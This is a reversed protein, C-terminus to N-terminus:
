IGAGKQVEANGELRLNEMGTDTTAKDATAVADDKIIRVKGTATIKDEAHVWSIEDASVEGGTSLEAHANGKLLVDKKTMVVSGGDSSITLFSGDERYWKGKVGKLINTDTKKIYEMEGIQLEWILKGDKEEKLSSNLVRLNPAGNGNEPKKDQQPVGSNLLWFFVLALVALGAAVALILKKNKM